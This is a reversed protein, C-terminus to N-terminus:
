YLPKPEEIIPKYHTTIGYKFEAKVFDAKKAGDCPFWEVKETLIGVKYWRDDVPLNSGDPEIRTWGNNDHLGALAIPRWWTGNWQVGNAPDFGLDSPHEPIDQVLYQGWSVYGDKDIAERNKFPEYLIGWAKKIAEQKAEENTM